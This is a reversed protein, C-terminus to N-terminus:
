QREQPGMTKSKVWRWYELIMAEVSVSSPSNNGPEDPAQEGPLRRGGAEWRAILRHYKERSAPTDYDGLYYSRRKKTFADYLTVVALNRDTHKRYAPSNSPAHSM